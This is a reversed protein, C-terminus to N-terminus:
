ELGAKHLAAAAFKHHYAPIRGSRVDTHRIWQNIDVAIVEIQKLVRANGLMGHLETECNSLLELVREVDKSDARALAIVQEIDGYLGEQTLLRRIRSAPNLIDKSAFLLGNQLRELLPAPIADPCLKAQVVMGALAQIIESFSNGDRRSYHTRAREDPHGKLFEIYPARYGLLHGILLHGAEHLILDSPIPGVIELINL